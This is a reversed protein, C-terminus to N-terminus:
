KNDEKMLGDPKIVIIRRALRRAKRVTAWTGSRLEEPGQPCAILISTENVIHQNRVLYDYRAHTDDFDRFVRKSSDLPPHGIMRFGLDVALDHAQDDAGECDGHHLEVAGELKLVKFLDVLTNRQSRMLGKQTGTFGVSLVM